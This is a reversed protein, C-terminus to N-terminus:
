NLVNFLGCTVNLTRLSIGNRLHQRGPHHTSDLEFADLAPISDQSQKKSNHFDQRARILCPQVVAEMEEESFFPKDIPGSIHPLTLLLKEPRIYERSEPNSTNLSLLFHTPQRTTITQDPLRLQRGSACVAKLGLALFCFHFGAVRGM